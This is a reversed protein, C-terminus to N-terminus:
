PNARGALDLRRFDPAERWVRNTMVHAVLSPSIGFREAIQEYILTGRLARIERAKELTLHNCRRGRRVNEVHTVPEMHDPNVCLRNQCLHDLEKGEPIRKGACVFYFRHARIVAGDSKFYPYGDKDTSRQWIWCKTVENVKYPPGYGSKPPKQYGLPHGAAGGSGNAKTKFEIESQQQM